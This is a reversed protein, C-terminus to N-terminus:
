IAPLIFWNLAAKSGGYPSQTAPFSALGEMLGISGILISIAVFIPSGTQSAQLLDATAQFLTIPGVSNVAFPQNINDVTTQRVTSGGITIGANAIVINLVQIGHEKRLKDVAEGADSAVSSSLKLTILRSSEAKPLEELAKSSPHEPNRVGVIVTIAPPTILM